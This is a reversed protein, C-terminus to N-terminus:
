DSETGGIFGSGALIKSDTRALTEKANISVDIKAEEHMDFAVGLVIVFLDMMTPDKPKAKMIVGGDGRGAV